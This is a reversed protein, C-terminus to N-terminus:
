RRNAAAARVRANSEAMWADINSPLATPPPPKGTDAVARADRQAELDRLRTETRAQAELAGVQNELAVARAQAMRDAAQQEQWMAQYRADLIPDQALVPGACAAYLILAIVLARM